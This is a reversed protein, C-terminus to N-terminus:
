RKLWIDNALLLKEIASSLDPLSVAGAKSLAEATRRVAVAHDKDPRAWVYTGSYQLEALDHNTRRALIEKAERPHMDIWRAADELAKCFRRATERNKQILEAPLVLGGVVYPDTVYRARPNLVLTRAVNKALAISFAPEILFAADVKGSSLQRIVTEPLAPVERVSRQQLGAGELVLRLSARATPSQSYTAVTHGALESVEYIGSKASVVLASVPSSGTELALWVLRLREPERASVNLIDVLPIPACLNARKNLLANLMENGDRCGVPEINLQQGDFLGREMAVFFPLNSTFPACAVKMSSPPLRDTRLRNVVLTLGIVSAAMVLL